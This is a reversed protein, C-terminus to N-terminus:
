RRMYQDKIVVWIVLVNALLAVIFVPVYLGIVVFNDVRLTRLIDEVTWETFNTQNM